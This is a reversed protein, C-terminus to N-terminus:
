SFPLKKTKTKKIPTTNSSLAEDYKYLLLEVVQAIGGTWKGRTIKSISDRSSNAQAPREM